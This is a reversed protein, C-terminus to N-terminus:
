IIMLKIFYIMLSIILCPKPHLLTRGYRGRRSRTNIPESTCVRLTHLLLLDQGSGVIIRIFDAGTCIASYSHLSVYSFIADAGM